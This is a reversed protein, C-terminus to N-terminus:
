AGAERDLLAQKRGAGWRYGSLSGGAAVVRHCPIAVALNNAGCAQAVARAAEPSGIREAVDAYSATEGVPIARLAQWVREQFATGKIDLPLDLGSSPSEVLTEVKRVVDGYTGDGAILSADPFAQRLDALAEGADGFLIARVGKDSTAVLVRGLSTEGVAYNLTSDHRMAGEDIQTMKM